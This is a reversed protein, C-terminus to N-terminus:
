LFSSSGLCFICGAIYEYIEYLPSFANLVGYLLSFGCGCASGLLHFIADSINYALLLGVVNLAM